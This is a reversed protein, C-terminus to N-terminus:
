YGLNRYAAALQATNTQDDSSPGSDGSDVYVLLPRPQAMAMVDGIIVTNDWWTSPSMAGVLGFTGAQTCGAYASILGGLSSGLIGTHERDPLTRLMADVQPKLEEVLMRLYKDGDGGFGESSDFTSDRICM